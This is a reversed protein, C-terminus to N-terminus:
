TTQAGIRIDYQCLYRFSLEIAVSPVLGVVFNVNQIFPEADHTPALTIQAKAVHLRCGIIVYKELSISDMESLLTSHM